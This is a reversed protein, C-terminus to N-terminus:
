RLKRYILSFSTLTVPPRCLCGFSFMRSSLFDTLRHVTDALTEEGDNYPFRTTPDLAAQTAPDFDMEDEEDDDPVTIVEVAPSTSMASASQPTNMGDGTIRVLEVESDEVSEQLVDAELLPLMTRSDPTPSATSPSATGDHLNSRLNITVKSGPTGPPPHDLPPEPTSPAVSNMTLDSKLQGSPSSDVVPLTSSRETAANPALHSSLGPSLSGSTRRRKRSSADDEDFPKPRSGTLEASSARRPLDLPDSAQDM